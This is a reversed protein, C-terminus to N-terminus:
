QRMLLHFERQQQQRQQFEVEHKREGEPLENCVQSCGGNDADCLNVM